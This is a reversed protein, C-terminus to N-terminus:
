AAPRLRTGAGADALLGPTEADLYDEKEMASGFLAEPVNTHYRLYYRRAEEATARRPEYKRIFM